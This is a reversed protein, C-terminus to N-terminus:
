LMVPSSIDVWDVVDLCGSCVDSIWCAELAQAVNAKFIDTLALGRFAVAHNM